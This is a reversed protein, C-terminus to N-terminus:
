GPPLASGMRVTWGHPLTVQLDRDLRTATSVGDERGAGPDVLRQGQFWHLVATERHATHLPCHLTIHATNLPCDSCNLPCNSHHLRQHATFLIYNKTYHLNHATYPLFPATLM